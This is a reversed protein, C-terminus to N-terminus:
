LVICTKTMFQVRWKYLLNTEVHRRASGDVHVLPNWWQWHTQTPGVVMWAYARTPPDWQGVTVAHGM